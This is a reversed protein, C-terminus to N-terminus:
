RALPAGIAWRLLRVDATRGERWRTRRRWVAGGFAQRVAGLALGFRGFAPGVAGCAGGRRALPAARGPSGGRGPGPRIRTTTTTACRRDGGQVESIRRRSTRGSQAGNKRARLSEARAGMQTRRALIAQQLDATADATRGLTARATGRKLSWLADEGYMRPRQDDAFRAIGDSLFREADAAKGARISTSGSELWVLRNRPFEERLHALQVLADDYRLERNYMLILAFRADSQNDGHYAAAAEILSLGKEKGGGFGAMYAVLRLPMALAAVIYRYTGVILGADKRKPDLTLVKEHEEYAERASRFAGSM